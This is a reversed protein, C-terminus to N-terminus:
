LSLRKGSKKGSNVIVKKSSLLYNPLSLPPPPSPDFFHNKRENVDNINHRKCLILKMYRSQSEM